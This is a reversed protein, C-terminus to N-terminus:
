FNSLLGSGKVECQPTARSGRKVGCYQITCGPGGAPFSKKRPSLCQSSYSTAAKTNRITPETLTYASTRGFVREVKVRRISALPWPRV